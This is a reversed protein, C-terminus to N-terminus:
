RLTMETADMQDILDQIDGEGPKCAAIMTSVEGTDGFAHIAAYLEGYEGTGNVTFKMTAFEVTKGNTAALEHSGVHEGKLSAGGTEWVEDRVFSVLDDVSPIRGRLSGSRQHSTQYACRTDSSIYVSKGADFEWNGLYIFSVGGVTDASELPYDASSTETTSSEQGGATSSGTDDTNGSFLMLGGWVLGGILAAGLVGVLAWVWPAPGSRPKTATDQGTTEHWHQTAQQGVQQSASAGVREPGAYNPGAYNPGAYTSASAQNHQWHEHQGGASFERPQGQHHHSAPHVPYARGQGEPYRPPEAELRQGTSEGNFESYGGGGFARAGGIYSTNGGFVAPRDMAEQGDAEQGDREPERTESM